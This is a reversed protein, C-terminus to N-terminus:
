FSTGCNQATHHEAPNEIHFQQKILYILYLRLFGFVNSINLQIEMNNSLFVAM